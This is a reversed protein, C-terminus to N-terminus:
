ISNLLGTKPSTVINGPSTEEVIKSKNDQMSSFWNNAYDNESKLYNIVEIDSRTDDRMWYYNDIRIDGHQSLEYPIKKPNPKDMSDGVCSTLSILIILNRIKM